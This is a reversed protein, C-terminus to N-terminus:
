RRRSRRLLDRLEAGAFKSLEDGIDGLPKFIKEDITSLATIILIVMFAIFGIMVFLFAIM